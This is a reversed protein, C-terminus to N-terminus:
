LSNRQLLAECHTWLEEVYTQILESPEITKPTPKPTCRSLWQRVFRETGVRKAGAPSMLWRTMRELEASIDIGPYARELAHLDIGTFSVRTRDFRISM